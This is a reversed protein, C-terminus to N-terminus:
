SERTIKELSKLFYIFGFLYILTGVWAIWEEEIFFFQLSVLGIFIALSLALIKLSKVSSPHTFMMILSFKLNKKFNKLLKYSYYVCIGAQFPIFILILFLPIVM